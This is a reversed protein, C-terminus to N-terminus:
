NFEAPAQRMPRDPNWIGLGTLRAKEQAYALRQEYKTNPSRSKALVYGAEVLEENLLKGRHWAYALHLKIDKGTRSDQVVRYPEVDDELLITRDKSILEELYQKAELSWPKQQSWNPAEIGLLIVREALPNKGTVELVELTQGSVVQSVNVREGQPAISAQCGGILFACCVLGCLRLFFFSKM